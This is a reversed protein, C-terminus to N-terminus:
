SCTALYLNPEGAEYLAGVIVKGGEHNQELSVLRPTRTGAWAFGEGM